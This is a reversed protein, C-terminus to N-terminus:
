YIVFNDIDGKECRTIISAVINKSNKISNSKKIFTFVPKYGEEILGVNKLGLIKGNNITAMKLIEKPEIHYIKYIFDMEKFISPSNAMFNDTGIGILLDNKIFENINPLGVNFSANARPCVVIPIKNEKLINVEQSTTHTAHIIFNPNLKLDVIREIETKGYNEKSYNVSGEHENAHISFLKNSKKTNKSIFKLKEDSYENAGSLGIGDSNKLIEKLEDRLENEENKTPRGLIIPKIDLKSKAVAEKLLNIGNLGNERFDCFYNIGNEYLEYLGDLMGNVLDKENCRNLFKHKLGNPPKVLEDLNKNIGIDKIPTDGIHTHANILSPIIIGEYEIVNKVDENTFGKIIGDEIVLIGKKYEFESGYLFNSKIYITDM